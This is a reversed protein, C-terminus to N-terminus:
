LGDSGAWRSSGRVRDKRGPASRMTDVANQIASVLADLLCPSQRDCQASASVRFLLRPNPFWYVGLVGLM